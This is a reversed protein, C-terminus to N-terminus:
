QEKNFLTVLGATDGYSRILSDDCLCLPGEEFFTMTAQTVPIDYQEYGHMRVSAIVTLWNEHDITLCVTIEPVGKTAAPIETIIYYGWHHTEEAKEGEGEFVVILAETQYDHITTFVASRMAPRSTNRPIVPVFKNGNVRIGITHLTVHFNLLELNRFGTGLSNAGAMAAGRLAANLPNVTGKYLEKGKCITTVLNKVRPINCCEGVIIVDNISEVDVKADQLCQIILREGKEFVEKKVEEFEEREVVKHIKSGDGMELDFEVSTQSSLQTIVEHVTNRIRAMLKIERDEHVRKKFINKSVPLLHCIMNELLDERGIPSGRLAKIRLKGKEAAIVAVDCYGADMNFVLAINKRENNMDELSSASTQLQQQAYFLAVAIPQPMLEVDDLDAWASAREIRTRQLRTFSVPVTFVVKRIPRKVQIEVSFKLKVLFKELLEVATTSRCAKNAITAIFPRVKIDLTHMLFPFNSIPLFVMRGVGEQTGKWVSVRCPSTGIDIGIAIEPETM